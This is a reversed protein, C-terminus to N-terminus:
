ETHPGRFGVCLTVYPFMRLAKDGIVDARGGTPIIIKM